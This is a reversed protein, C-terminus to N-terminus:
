ALHQKILFTKVVILEKKKNFTVTKLMLLLNMTSHKKKFGFEFKSITQRKKLENVMMFHYHFNVLLKCSHRHGRNSFKM